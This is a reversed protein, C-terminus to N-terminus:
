EYLWKHPTVPQLVLGLVIHPERKDYVVNIRWRLKKPSGTIGAVIEDNRVVYVLDHTYKDDYWHGRKGSNELVGLYNEPRELLLDYMPYLAQAGDHAWSGVNDGQSVGRAIQISLASRLQGIMGQVSVAEARMTMSYFKPLAVSALLSVVAIVVILELITFGKTNRM